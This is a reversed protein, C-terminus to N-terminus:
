DAPVEIEPGCVVLYTDRWVEQRGICPAGGVDVHHRNAVRAPHAKAFHVDPDRVCDECRYGRSELINVVGNLLIRDDDSATLQSFSAGVTYGNSRLGLQRGAVASDFQILPGAQDAHWRDAHPGAEGERWLAYEQVSSMLNVSLLVVLTSGIIRAAVSRARARSIAMVMLVVTAVLAVPALTWVFMASFYLQETWIMVRLLVLGVLYAVIVAVLCSTVGRSTRWGILCSMILSVGIVVMLVILPGAGGFVDGAVSFPGLEYTARGFHHESNLHFPILGLMASPFTASGIFPIVINSTLANLAPIYREADSANRLWLLNPVALCLSAALGLAPRRFRSRAAGRAQVVAGVVLGVILIFYPPVIVLSIWCVLGLEAWNHGDTAKRSLTDVAALVGLIMWTVFFERSMYGQFWLSTLASSGLAALAVAAQGLSTARLRSAVRFAMWLTLLTFLIRLIVIADSARDLAPGWVLARTSYDLLRFGNGFDTGAGLASQDWFLTTLNFTDFVDTQLFGLSWRDTLAFGGVIFAMVIGAAMPAVSGIRTSRRVPSWDRRLLARTLRYAGLALLPVTAFGALSVPVAYNLAGVTLMALAAGVLPRPLVEHRVASTWNPRAVACGTLYAAGFLAISVAVIGAMRMYGQLLSRVVALPTATFTGTSVSPPVSSSLDVDLLGVTASVDQLPTGSELSITRGLFLEEREVLRDPSELRRGAIGDPGDLSLTEQIRDALSITVAGAGPHQRFRLELLAFRGTVEFTAGAGASTIALGDASGYWDDVRVGELGGSIAARLQTPLLLTVPAITDATITFSLQAPSLAGTLARDTSVIAPDVGIDVGTIRVPALLCMLVTVLAAPALAVGVLRRLKLPRAAWSRDISARVSGGISRRALIAGVAVAM